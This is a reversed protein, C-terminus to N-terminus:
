HAVPVDQLLGDLRQSVPLVHQHAACHAEGLAPQAACGSTQCSEWPLAGLAARAGLELEFRGSLVAHDLLGALVRYAAQLPDPTV